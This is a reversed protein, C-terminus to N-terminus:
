FGRAKSYSIDDFQNDIDDLKTMQAGRSLPHSGPDSDRELGPALVDTLFRDFYRNSPAFGDAGPNPTKPV